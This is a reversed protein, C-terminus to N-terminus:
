IAAKRASMSFLTAIGTPKTRHDWIWFVACGVVAGGVLLWQGWHGEFVSEQAEIIGIGYMTAGLVVGFGTYGGPLDFIKCLITAAFSALIIWVGLAKHHSARILQDANYKIQADDMAKQVAQKQQFIQEDHAQQTTPRTVKMDIRHQEPAPLSAYLEIGIQVQDAIPLKKTSDFVAQRDMACGSIVLAVLLLLQRPRPKLCTPKFYLTTM